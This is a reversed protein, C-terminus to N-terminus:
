IGVSRRGAPVVPIELNHLLPYYLLILSSINKVQIKSAPKQAQAPKYVVRYKM